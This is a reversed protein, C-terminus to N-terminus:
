IIKGYKKKYDFWKENPNLKENYRFEKWKKIKDVITEAKEWKRVDAFKRKWVTNLKKISEKQYFM